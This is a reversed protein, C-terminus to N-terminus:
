ADFPRGVSSNRGVEVLAIGREGGPTLSASCFNEVIYYAPRHGTAESVLPVNAHRGAVDSEISYRTGFVDEIEHILRQPLGDALAGVTRVQISQLARAGDADVVYGEKAPDDPRPLSANTKIGFSRSPFNFACWLHQSITTDGRMVWSHDRYASGEIEVRPGGVFAITGRANLAQQQHNYPLNLGLTNIEQFSPAPNGSTRCASFDFTPHRAEFTLDVEIGDKLLSLEFRRHPEVFRLRLAEDGIERALAFSKPFATSNAYAFARGQVNLNCTYRARDFGPEHNFHIVGFTRQAEALLIFFYNEKYRLFAYAPVPHPLDDHASTM